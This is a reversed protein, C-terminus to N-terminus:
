DNCEKMGWSVQGRSDMDNNVQQGRGDTRHVQMRDNRMRGRGDM